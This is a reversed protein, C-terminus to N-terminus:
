LYTVQITTGETPTQDFVIENTTTDLHWTMPFVTKGKFVTVKITNVNNVKKSLKFSNPLTKLQLGSIDIQTAFGTDLDSACIDGFDGGLAQALKNFRDEYGARDAEPNVKEICRYRDKDAQTPPNATPYAVHNISYVRVLDEDGGKLALLQNRFYNVADAEGVPLISHDDSYSVYIVVLPVGSRIFGPQSLAKVSMELGDNQPGTHLNFQQSMFNGVVASREATSGYNYKLILANPKFAGNNFQKDMTTFAMQYDRAQADLREFFAKAYNIIRTRANYMPSRDDVVWLIDLTQPNYDQTFYDSKSIPTFADERNCSLVFVNSLGLVVVLFM